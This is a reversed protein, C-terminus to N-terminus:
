VSFGASISFRWERSLRQLGRAYKRPSASLTPLFVRGEPKLSLIGPLSQDAGLEEEHTNQDGTAHVLGRVLLDAVQYDFVILSVFIAVISGPLTSLLMGGILSVLAWVFETKFVTLIVHFESPQILGVLYVIM